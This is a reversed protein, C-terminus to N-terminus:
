HRGREEVKPFRSPRHSDTVQLVRYVVSGVNADLDRSLASENMTKLVEVLDESLAVMFVVETDLQGGCGIMDADGAERFGGGM